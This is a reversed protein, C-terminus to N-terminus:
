FEVLIKTITTKSDNEQELRNITKHLHKILITNENTTEKNEM